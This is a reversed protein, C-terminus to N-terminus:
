RREARSPITEGKELDGLIGGETEFMIIHMKGPADIIFKRNGSQVARHM